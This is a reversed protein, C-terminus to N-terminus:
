NPTTGAGAFTLILEVTHADPNAVTKFSASLAELSPIASNNKLFGTVYSEDYIDGPKLTWAKDFDAKQTPNLHLTTVASLKYAEGPIVAVTFAVTHATTDLQPTSTVVVDMYGKRRYAAELKGLSQLLTKQSAIDGPHLYAEANFAETTMMPSGSWDLKSLRYVDGEELTVSVDVDVTSDTTSAITRTLSTVKAGQFGANKYVNLLVNPLSRPLLGENYAKGTLALVLKDKATSFNPRMGDVTLSHIRVAPKTLRFELVRLPQSSSPAVPDVSLSGGTVGKATLLQKLAAAIADQENGAEPVTGDFLPVTKQIEAALESPQYWVFNDFSATLIRAPDQPKVHFIVTISKAPGDVTSSLDAFAGTDILHQSAAQLDDKTITAGPKLGSAAELAAQSYPMKGDFVINKVTYQQAFASTALLCFIGLARLARLTHM